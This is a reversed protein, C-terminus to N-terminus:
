FGVLAHFGAVGAGGAIVFFGKHAVGIGGGGRLAGDNMSGLIAM